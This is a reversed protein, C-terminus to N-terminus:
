HAPLDPAGDLWARVGRELEVAPLGLDLAGCWRTGDEDWLASPGGALPWPESPLRLERELLARVFERAEDPDLASVGRADGAPARAAVEDMRSRLPAAGPPATGAGRPLLWLRAHCESAIADVRRQGERELEEDTERWGAGDIWELEWPGLRARTRVIDRTTGPRESVLMAARGALANVLSSKGANVPGSVLVRIPGLAFRAVRSRELLAARARERGDRALRPWTSLEARLAGQAQDLLIRAGHLGEALQLADEAREECSAPCREAFRLSALRALLSEVLPPAGAAHLEVVRPARGVVLVEDFLGAGCDLRRLAASGPAPARTGLQEFAAEWEEASAGRGDLEVVAVAGRARATALRM